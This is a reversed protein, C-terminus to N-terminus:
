INLIHTNMEELRKNYNSIFKKVDKGNHKYQEIFYAVVYSINGYETEKCEKLLEEQKLRYREAEAKNFILQPRHFYDITNINPIIPDNYENTREYCNKTILCEHKYTFDNKLKNNHQKELLHDIFQRTKDENFWKCKPKKINENLKQKMLETYEYKSYFNTYDVKPISMIGFYSNIHNHIKKITNSNDNTTTIIPQKDKTYYTIPEAKEYHQLLDVKFYCDLLGTEDYFLKINLSIDYHETPIFTNVSNVGYLVENAYQKLEIRKEGTEKAKKANINFIGRAPTLLKHEKSFLIENYCENTLTIAKYTKNNEIIKISTKNPKVIHYPTSYIYNITNTMAYPRVHMADKTYHRSLTILATPKTYYNPKQAITSKAYENSSYKYDIGLEVIFLKVRKVMEDLDVCNKFNQKDLKMIKTYEDWNNIITDKHNNIHEKFDENTYTYTFNNHKNLQLLNYVSFTAQLKIEAIDNLKLGDKKYTKNNSINVIYDSHNSTLYEYERIIKDYSKRNTDLRNLDQTKCEINQMNNTLNLKVYGNALVNINVIIKNTNELTILKDLRIKRDYSYVNQNANQIAKIRENFYPTLHQTHKIQEKRLDALINPKEIYDAVRLFYYKQKMFRIANRQEETETTYYPESLKKYTLYDITTANCINMRKELTLANCSEIHEIDKFNDNSYINIINLNHSILIYLLEQIYHEECLKINAKLNVYLMKYVKDERHDKYKANYMSTYTTNIDYFKILEDRDAYVKHKVRKNYAIHIEKDKLNRFRFLMQSATRATPVQENYGIFYLKNFYETEISIGTTITPSYLMVDVKYKNITDHQINSLFEQKTISITKENKPKLKINDDGTILIVCLENYHDEMDKYLKRVQESSSACFAIKLNNTIDSKFNYILQEVNYYNYIKYDAFNNDQLYYCKLDVNKNLMEKAVNVSNIDIDADLMLVLKARKIHKKIENFKDYETNITANTTKAKMTTSFYHENISVYEDLVVVDYKSIPNRTIISEMSCIYIDTYEALDQIQNGDNSKCTDITNGDQHYNVILNPHSAKIKKATEANLANNSTLILTKIKKHNNTFHTECEGVANNTTKDCSKLFISYIATLLRNIIIKTKGSGYLSKAIIAQQLPDDDNSDLIITDMLEGLQSILTITKCCLKKYESNIIINSLRDQAEYYFTKNKKDLITNETIDIIFDNHIYKERPKYSQKEDRLYYDIEIQELEATLDTNTIKNVYNIFESSLCSDVYFFIDYNTVLEYLIYEYHIQEDATINTTYSDMEDENFTENIVSHSHILFKRHQNTTMILYKFLKKFDKNKSYFETPLHKILNNVLEHKSTIIKNLTKNAVQQKITEKAKYARTNTYIKETTNSTRDLLFTIPNKSKESTYEDYCKFHRNKYKDTKSKTHFPLNLFRDKTYIRTDLDNLETYTETLNVVLEKQLSKKMRYQPLTIHSSRVINANTENRIYILPEVKDLKLETKLADLLITLKNNFQEITIAQKFDFDFYIKPTDSRIVDYLNDKTNNSNTNIEVDGYSSQITFPKKTVLDNYEQATAVIFRYSLGNSNNYSISEALLFADIDQNNLEEIRELAKAKPHEVAQTKEFIEFVM